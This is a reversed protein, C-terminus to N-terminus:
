AKGKKKTKEREFFANLVINLTPNTIFQRRFLFMITGLVAYVAAVVLFAEANSGMKKGLWFGGAVSVMILVLAGFFALVAATVIASTTQAIREAAELRIYDGQQRIYQRAYEVTEGASFLIEDTSKM